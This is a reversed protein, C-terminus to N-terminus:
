RVPPVALSPGPAWPGSVGLFLAGANVAELGVSHSNESANM